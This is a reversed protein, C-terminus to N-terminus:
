SSKEESQIMTNQWEKIRALHDYDSRHNKLPSPRSLYPTEEKSFAEVMKTLGEIAEKIRIDPEDVITVTCAPNAGSIKWYSLESVTAAEIDTFSGREALWGELPLQPAFGARIQNDNPVGGTKYDIIVLSGDEKVMDIRDAKATLTFNSNPVRAEAKVEVGSVTFTTHRIAENDVFWEAVNLFRPWWFAYVVPQNIVKEFHKKGIAILRKKGVDGLVSGEHKIFEEVIDHIMSGKDAANPKDDLPKLKSLGLIRKAYLAYPDKKWLEVSTVPLSTPRYKVPPRPAPPDLTMIHSPTDMVEIWHQWPEGGEPLEGVVAKIRFLWRSPVAPTGDVKEARTMVVSSAGLAQLFDHTAQGVRQEPTPLGFQRRMDRNMWPDAGADPPSIGENLGGVIMLDARQLRAEIAGWIFLRPHRGWKPRVTVTSLWEAFLAPYDSAHMRHHPQMDDLLGAFHNSLAEGADGSWLREAGSTDNSTALHEAAKLHLELLNSIECEAGAELLANLEGIPALARELCDSEEEGIYESTKSAIIIGALGATPRVGRLVYKDLKRVIALFKIRELGGSALPHKLLALLPVPALGADAATIMLRLYTGVSTGEGTIGASDDIDIGFRMLAARVHRALVRDPTVLAATKSPTELAERMLLAIAAAEERRTPTAILRMGKFVKKADRKEPPLKLWEATTSSPRMVERMIEIREDSASSAFVMDQPLPWDEVETRAVGMGNLLEKLMYQPHVEDIAQWCADDIDRDLGPVVVAGNQMRAVVSLLERAAPISGTSGAAIVDGKPPKKSWAYALQRLMKDRRAAPNILGEEKLFLPWAHSVIKLFDLTIQWHRSLNDPVLDVLKDFNLSQTEVQDMLKALEGALRWSQASSMQEGSGVKAWRTILKQLELQRRTESIAPPFATDDGNLGAGLFTIEEEDVDGIPRMLPLLSVQGDNLRLFAERLARVARRNPLLITLESLRLPDADVRALLGAALADAFPLNPAITYLRPIGARSM